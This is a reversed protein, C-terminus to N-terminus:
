TKGRYYGKRIRCPHAGWVLSYPPVTKGIIITGAAVVSHHGIQTGMGIFSHSGIFVNDGIRIPAFDVLLPNALGVTRRHSSACNVAVFSACDVNAGIEVIGGKDYIESMIGIKTGEGIVPDGNILVLPHFRSLGRRNFEANPWRDATWAQGNAQITRDIFEFAESAKDPPIRIMRCGAELDANIRYKEDETLM